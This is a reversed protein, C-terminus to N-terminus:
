DCFWTASSPTIDIGNKVCRCNPANTTDWYAITPDPTSGRGPANKQLCAEEFEPNNCSTTNCALVSYCKTNSSETVPVTQWYYGGSCNPLKMDFLYLNEVTPYFQKVGTDNYIFDETRITLKPTKGLSPEFSIADIKLYSDGNSRSLSLYGGDMTIQVDQLDAAKSQPIEPESPVVIQTWNSVQDASFDSYLVATGTSVNVLGIYMKSAKSPDDIGQNVYVKLLSGYSVINFPTTLVENINANGKVVLNNYYGSPSPVYSIEEMTLQASAFVSLFLFVIFTFYKM